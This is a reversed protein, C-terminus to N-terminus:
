RHSARTRTADAVSRASEVADPARKVSPQYMPRALQTIEAHMRSSRHSVWSDLARMGERRRATTAYPLASHMRVAAISSWHNRRGQSPEENGKAVANAATAM